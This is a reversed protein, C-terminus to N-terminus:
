NGGVATSDYVERTAPMESRGDGHTRVALVQHVATRNQEFGVASGALYLRWVRARGPGVLRQARDWSGELNRVWARLTRGYHERLSHVDRVELGHGQMASVVTGVEVLAADPFVYRGMFSRPSVRGDGGPEPRSIAHNLLRGGPRLLDHLHRLYEDMHGSGVHEFMGISSIADFPGDGIERYDQVRIEVQGSLGQTAVRRRALEAQEQSITIGVVEAGHHLAAHIAMSGWGCGVDLVRDGPSIGLKRSVLEHKADEADELTSDPRTWYGCSYTLRPGLLLEYFENGVDYHHHIAAADRRRSHLLGHLHAEEEPIPPRRAVLGLRRATRLLDFWGGLGLDLRVDEDPAALQERVSLLAFVDGEIDLAGSVYARALGLEGPSWLLHQLASPSHVVVTVPPRPPGLTSGDWARLGITPERGIFRRLIPEISEAISGTRVGISTSM